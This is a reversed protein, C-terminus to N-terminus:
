QEFIEKQTKYWQNWTDVKLACEHYLAYNNTVVLLVDSLKTTGAPVEKLNPCLTKIDEPVSPFNREVPVAVCATLLLAITLSLFIRM